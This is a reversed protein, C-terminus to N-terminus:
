AKYIRVGVPIRERRYEEGGIVASGAQSRGPIYKKTSTTNAQLLEFFKVEVLDLRDECDAEDWNEFAYLVFADVNFYFTTIWGGSGAANKTRETGASSIVMAPNEKGPWSKVDQYGYCAQLQLGDGVMNANVLAVLADRETERNTAM